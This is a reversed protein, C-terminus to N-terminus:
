EFRTTMTKVFGYTDVRFLYEEGLIGVYKTDIENLVTESFKLKSESDGHNILVLKLNKFKKLFEIMEDAKAHGSYETTYEIDAERIRTLGNVKVMQGKKTDQLRRGLTGEATYGTFHILADSRQVYVPIYTQAPGYSGMGSTTVIIKVNKDELLEPRTDKSVYTLNSPLFDRMDEKIEIDANLYIDTYKFALKGDFYIPISTSLRGDEQMKKIIYLIEQSRGLSFVPVIVTKNQNIAKIVNSEFCINISNSNTNGYTAEQVITLRLEKVWDPLEEAEFFLNKNNYDGTFFLNIDEQEPYSIQVLIMAAGLLHVNKFFTVKINPTVEITSNYNCGVIKKLANDMDQTDYLPKVNNRKGIDKLVSCSDELALGIIKSTDKTMYISNSYGKKVLYPLRGIHDVHNHTVLVFDLTQANCWMKDNNEDHDDKHFLGCDVMFKTTEGNPFKAVVLNCSGSVGPHFSMIDAYFKTRTGKGM